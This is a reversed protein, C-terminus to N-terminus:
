CRNIIARLRNRMSEEDIVDSRVHYTVLVSDESRAFDVVFLVGTSGSLSGPDDAILEAKGSSMDLHLNNHSGMEDFGHTVCVAVADLAGSLLFSETVDTNRVQERTSCGGLFLVLVTIALKM